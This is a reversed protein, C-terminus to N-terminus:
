TAEMTAARLASSTIQKVQNNLAAFASQVLPSNQSLKMAEANGAGIKTQLAVGAMPQLLLSLLLSLCVLCIKTDRLNPMKGSRRLINLWLVPSIGISRYWTFKM